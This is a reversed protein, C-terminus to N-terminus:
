HCHHINLRPRPPTNRQLPFSPHHFFKYQFRAHPVRVARARYADVVDNDFDWPLKELQLLRDTENGAEVESADDSALERISEVRRLIEDCLEKAEAGSWSSHLIRETYTAIISAAELVETGGELEKPKGKSDEDM